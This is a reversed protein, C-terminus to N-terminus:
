ALPCITKHRDADSFILTDPEFMKGDFDDVGEYRWGKGKKLYALTVHPKYDNFRNTYEVKKRFLGNLEHLEQCKVGIKLVDFHPSDIFLSMRGLEVTFPETRRAVEKAVAPSQTHLGYLVTIHLEEERGYGPEEHLDEDSINRDGWTLIEKAMNRPLNIQVSSLKTRDKFM